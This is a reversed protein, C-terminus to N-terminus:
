WGRRGRGGEGGVGVVRGGGGVVRGRGGEGGPSGTQLSAQTKTQCNHSCM